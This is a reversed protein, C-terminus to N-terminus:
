DTLHPKVWDSVIDAMQPSADLVYAHSYGRECIRIDGKPFLAQLESAYQLPCWRDTSGFYFSLMKLYKEVLGADLQDVAQM